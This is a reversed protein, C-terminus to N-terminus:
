GFIEDSTNRSPEEARFRSVAYRFAENVDRFFDIKQGQFLFWMDSCLIAPARESMAVFVPKGLGRAYGVELCTGYAGIDDIWCFLWDAEEIAKLSRRYVSSQHVSQDERCGEGVGHTSDGHSCGHDCSTFFPGNTVVGYATTPLLKVSGDADAGRLDPVLSHRWCNQRIKGALYVTRTYTSLVRPKGSASKHEIFTM